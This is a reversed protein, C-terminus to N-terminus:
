RKKCVSFLIQYNVCGWLRDKLVGYKEIQIGRISVTKLYADSLFLNCEHRIVLSPFVLLCHFDECACFTKGLMFHFHVHFPICQLNPEKLSHENYRCKSGYLNKCVLCYNKIFSKVISKNSCMRTFTLDRFRFDVFWFYVNIFPWVPVFCFYM